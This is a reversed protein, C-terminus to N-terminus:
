RQHGRQNYFNTCALAFSELNPTLSMSIFCAPIVPITDRRKQLFSIYVPLQPHNPRPFWTTKM